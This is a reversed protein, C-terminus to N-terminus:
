PSPQTGFYSLRRGHHKCIPECSWPIKRLEVVQHVCRNTHQDRLKQVWCANVRREFDHTEIALEDIVAGIENDLRDIADGTAAAPAPARRQKSWITKGASIRPQEIRVGFWRANPRHVRM